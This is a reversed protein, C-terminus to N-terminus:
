PLTLVIGERRPDAGGEIKQATIKIGHLGSHHARLIVKHGMSQLAQAHETLRTDTELEIAGRFVVHRPLDIAEQMSLHWDILGIVTQAVYGIIRPGGPSGLLAFLRGQEDFIMVPTMSSRPRKYPAIANAVAKGNKEPLFSFDTLQNNLMMGGAMFRSGFAAEISSTMSVGNGDKDRVVFHTTSPRAISHNPARSSAPKDTFQGPALQPLARAPKILAARRRLYAMDLLNDIPVSVFDSDGVYLDRDAFALRSAESIMHVGAVSNPAFSAMDFASLMGLIQLLAIGGSSPPGISCIKYTRYPLCLPPRQKAQYHRMDQASLLGGQRSTEAVLQAGIKGTYFAAAGQKAFQKLTAAYAPNRLVTGIPKAKHTGDAQKQYYLARPASNKRLFRDRQLLYHLRPSIKFGAEALEIAPAFLTEWDLRGFQKHGAALLAPIGPVGIARADTMAKTFTQPKGRQTIFIDPKIAAPAIERGDWSTLTDKVAEYHLMFGGGALGSSQPEVLGLVSQIAIAADMASGGQALIARGAEAALPHAAVIM